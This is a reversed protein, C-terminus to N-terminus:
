FGLEEPQAPQQAMQDSRRFRSGFWPAHRMACPTYPLNEAIGLGWDGIGLGGASLLEPTRRVTACASAFNCVGYRRRYRTLSRLCINVPM